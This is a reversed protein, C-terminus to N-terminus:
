LRSHRQLTGQLFLWAMCIANLYVDCVEVLQLWTNHVQATQSLIEFARRQLWPSPHQLLSKRMFCQLYHPEAFSDRAVAGLDQATALSENFRAGSYGPIQTSYGPIGECFRM